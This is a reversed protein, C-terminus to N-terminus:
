TRDCKM